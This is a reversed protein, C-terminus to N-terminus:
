CRIAVQFDNVKMGDLYKKVSAAVIIIHSHHMGCCKNEMSAVHQANMKKRANGQRIM